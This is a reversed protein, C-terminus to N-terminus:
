GAILGHPHRSCFVSLLVFGILSMPSLLRYSLKLLGQVVRQFIMKAKEETQKKLDQHGGSLQIYEISDTMLNALTSVYSQLQTILDM